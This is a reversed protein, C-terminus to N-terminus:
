FVILKAVKRLPNGKQACKLWSKRLSLCRIHRHKFLKGKLSDDNSCIVTIEFIFKVFYM